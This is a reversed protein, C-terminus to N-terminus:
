PDPHVFVGLRPPLWLSSAGQQQSTTVVTGCPAAPAGVALAAAKTSCNLHDYAAPRPMGTTAIYGVPHLYQEREVPGPSSGYYVRYEKLSKTKVGLLTSCKRYSVLACPRVELELSICSVFSSLLQYFFLLRTVGVLRQISRVPLQPWWALLCSGAM